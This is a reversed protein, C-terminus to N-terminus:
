INIQAFFTELYLLRSCKFGFKTLLLIHRETLRATNSIPYNFRIVVDYTLVHLPKFILTSRHSTMIVSLKRRINSLIKRGGHEHYHLFLWIRCNSIYNSESWLYVFIHWQISFTKTKDTL